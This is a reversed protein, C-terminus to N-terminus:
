YNRCFVQFVKLSKVLRSGAFGLMKSVFLMTEQFIVKHPHDHKILTYITQDSGFIRRLFSADIVCSNKNCM